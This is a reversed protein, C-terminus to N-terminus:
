AGRATKLRGTVLGTIGSVGFLIFVPDFPLRYDANPPLGLANILIVGAAIAALGGLLRRDMSRNMLLGILGVVLWMSMRPLVESALNAVKMLAGIPTRPPLNRM